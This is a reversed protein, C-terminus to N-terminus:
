GRKSLLRERARQFEEDTLVGQDRMTQLQHLVTVSDTNVQYPVIAAMSGSAGAPLERGDDDLLQIFRGFSELRGDAVKVMYPQGRVRSADDLFYTLYEVEPRGTAGDPQGLLAVVQHKSMGIRLHSLKSTSTACGACALALLILGFANSKM